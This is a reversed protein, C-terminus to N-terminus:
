MSKNYILQFYLAANPFNQTKLFRLKSAITNFLQIFCFFREPKEFWWMYTVIENFVTTICHIRATRDREEDENYVTDLLRMLHHEITRCKGNFRFVTLKPLVREHVYARHKEFKESYFDYDLIIRIVDGYMFTDLSKYIIMKRCVDKRDMNM